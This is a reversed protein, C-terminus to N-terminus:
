QLDALERASRELDHLIRALAITRKTATECKLAVEIAARAQRLRDGAVALAEAQQDRGAGAVLTTWYPDTPM